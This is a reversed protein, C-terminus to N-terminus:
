ALEATSLPDLLEVLEGALARARSEYRARLRLAVHEARVAPWDAPLYEVPPGPDRRALLSWEGHLWLQRALDDASQLPGFGAWRRDGRCLLKPAHGPEPEHQHV